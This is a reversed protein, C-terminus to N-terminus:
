DVINDMYDLAEYLSNFAEDHGGFDLGDIEKRTSMGVGNKPTVQIEFYNSKGDNMSIWVAVGYKDFYLNWHPYRRTLIGKIEDIEMSDDM